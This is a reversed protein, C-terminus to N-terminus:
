KDRHYKTSQSKTRQWRFRVPLNQCGESVVLSGSYVDGKLTATPLLELKSSAKVNGVVNGAIIVNNGEIECNLSATEGIMVDGSAEIKGQVKGDIRISGKTRLTGEVETGGKNLVSDFVGPRQGSDKPTFM